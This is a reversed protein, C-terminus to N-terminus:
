NDLYIDKIVYITIALSLIASFVPFVWLDFNEYHTISLICVWLFVWIIIWFMFFLFGSLIIFLILSCLSDVLKYFFSTETRNYM